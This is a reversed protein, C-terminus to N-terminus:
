KRGSFGVAFMRILATMKALGNSRSMSLHETIGIEKLFEPPNSVIEEPTAGSYVNVLLSIIGKTIAAESDAHFYLHGEKYEPYLWTKSQCGRVLFTDIKSIQPCRLSSRAGVFSKWTVIKGAKM